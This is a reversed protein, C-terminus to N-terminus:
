KIINIRKTVIDNDTQIRAFYVGGPLDGVNLAMTNTNAQISKIMKGNTDYLTIHNITSLSEFNIVDSAPNPYLLIDTTTEHGTLGTIEENHLNVPVEEANLNGAIVRVWNLDNAIGNFSVVPTSGSPIPANEYSFIMMNLRDNEVFYVIDHGPLELNLALHELKNGSLEFQLGTLTGDSYVSIGNENLFLDATDSKLGTHPAMKDAGFINVIAIIDLINVMGDGNVDANFPCFADPTNGIYDNSIAIIDLVNVGGDGNADGPMHGLVLNIVMDDDVFVEGEEGTYCFAEIFYGFTGENTIYFVYDGAENEIGDFTIVADNVENGFGDTLNFTVTFFEPEHETETVLVDDVHWSHTYEAFYRFAIYITHGAYESLDISTEEWDEIVSAPTWIMEFDGSDPSPSGTSVFVSNGGTGPYWDAYENYSRFSLEYEMGEALELAPTILWTNEHWYGYVHFASHGGGPAFNRTWSEDGELNVVAWGEPPFVPLEFDELWPFENIVVPEAEDFNATFVTPMAPMNYTFDPVESVVADNIDTWNVFQFGPNAVASISVNAGEAYNGAGTVIGAGEPDVMLELSYVANLNATMTVDAAPMTYSFNMFWTYHEGDKDWNVFQYGDNVIIQIFVSQGAEYQGAGITTAAEEPNALLTLTYLEPEEEEGIFWRFNDAYFEDFSSILFLIQYDHVPMSSLDFELTVWQDRVTFQEWASHWDEAGSASSQGRLQFQSNTGGQEADGPVMIDVLLMTYEDSYVGPDWRWTGGWPNVDFWHLVKESTNIGEQLPNDVVQTDSDTGWGTEDFGQLTGDEFDALVIYDNDDDNDLDEMYAQIMWNGDGWNFWEEGNGYKNGKDPEPAQSDYGVNGFQNVSVGFWLEKTVDVAWHEDLEYENWEGFVPTSVAQTYQLVPDQGPEGEWIKLIYNATNALPGPHFKMKTLSKGEYQAIDAPEFRLALDLEINDWPNSQFNQYQANGWHLWQAHMQGAFLMIILLLYLKTKM